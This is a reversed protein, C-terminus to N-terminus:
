LEGRRIAEVTRQAAGVIRGERGGAVAALPRSTVTGVWAAFENRWFDFLGDGIPRGEYRAVVSAYWARLRADADATGLRGCFEAHMGLPVCLGRDCCWGHM